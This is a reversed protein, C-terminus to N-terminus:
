LLCFLIQSDILNLTGGISGSIIKGSFPLTGGILRGGISGSSQVFMTFFIQQVLFFSEFREKPKVKVM